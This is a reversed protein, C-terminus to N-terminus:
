DSALGPPQSEQCFGLIARVVMEEGADTNLMAHHISRNPWEAHFYEKIFAGREHDVTDVLAEAEASSKNEAILRRVKEEKSAYLFFRLTDKRARLFHQSGRGVIVCHGANAASAVVIQSIRVMSDADLMEIPAGRSGEYSGLAFSKLLRYYLPDRREEWKQVASSECHALRAIEETLLEDWLKWGLRTAVKEAIATAGSGYEREITIIRIM